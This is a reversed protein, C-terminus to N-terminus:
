FTVPPWTHLCLSSPSYSSLESNMQSNINQEYSSATRSLVRIDTGSLPRFTGCNTLLYYYVFISGFFFLPMIPHTKFHFVFFVQRLCLECRLFSFFTSLPKTSVSETSSIYRPKIRIHCENAIWGKLPQWFDFKTSNGGVFCETCYSLLCHLHCDTLHWKLWEAAGTFSGNEM